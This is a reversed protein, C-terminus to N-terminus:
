GRRKNHTPDREMAAGGFSKPISLGLSIQVFTHVFHPNFKTNTGSLRKQDRQYCVFEHRKL